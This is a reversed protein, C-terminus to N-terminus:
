ITNNRKMHVAALVITGGSILLIILPSVRDIILGTIIIGLPAIGGSLTGIIGTIRGRLNEPTMRQLTVMLPTNVTILAVGMIFLLIVNYACLVFNIKFISLNIVQIGLLMFVVGTTGLGFALNKLGNGKEKKNGLIISAIIMGVFYFAQFTGYQASSMKLVNNIIYPYVVGISANFFFNILLVYKILEYIIKQERVFQLVEKIENKFVTLTMPTKSSTELSSNFNFNIFMEIASSFFFSIGNLILFINIPILGYIVGALVPALIGSVATSTSCYSNIKMLKKDTVLNPMSSTLSTDYFINIIALLLSTIYIFEIKLGYISSLGLLGFTIIGSLADFTITLKKRDIRDAIIGAFPGLIIRPLMAILVNIAFSGGSGTVKLIYLSLAFNYINTGLLSITKSTLLLIINLKETSNEKKLDKIEDKEILELTNNM